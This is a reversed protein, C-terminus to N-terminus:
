PLPDSFLMYKGQHLTLAGRKLDRLFEIDLYCTLPASTQLEFRSSPAQKLRAIPQPLGAVIIDDVYIAIILSPADVPGYLFVCPDLQSRRAQFTDILWSTLM